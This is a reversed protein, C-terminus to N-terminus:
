VLHVQIDEELIHQLKRTGQGDLICQAVKVARLTAVLVYLQEAGSLEEDLLFDMVNAALAQNDQMGGELDSQDLNIFDYGFENILLQVMAPTQKILENRGHLIEDTRGCISLWADLRMLELLEDKCADQGAPRFRNVQYSYSYLLEIAPALEKFVDFKVASYEGSCVVGGRANHAYGPFTTKGDSIWKRASFLPDESPDLYRLTTNDTFGALANLITKVAGSCTQHDPGEEDVRPQWPTAWFGPIINTQSFWFWNIYGYDRLIRAQEDNRTHRDRDRQAREEKRKTERDLVEREEPSLPTPEASLSGTRSKSSEAEGRIPVKGDSAGTIWELLRLGPEEQMIKGGRELRTVMLEDEAIKAARSNREAQRELAEQHSTRSPVGLQELKNEVKVSSADGQNYAASPHTGSINKPPETSAYVERTQVKPDDFDPLHVQSTSNNEDEVTAQYPNTARPAKLHAQIPQQQSPSNGTIKQGLDRDADLIGSIMFPPSRKPPPLPPPPTLIRDEAVRLIWEGDHPGKRQSLAKSVNFDAPTAIKENLTEAVERRRRLANLERATPGQVLNRSTSTSTRIRHIWVRADKEVNRRDKHDLRAGAV